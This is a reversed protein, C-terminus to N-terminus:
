YPAYYDGNKILFITRGISFFFKRPTPADFLTIAPDFMFIGKLFKFMIMSTLKRMKISSSSGDSNESSSMRSLPRSRLM